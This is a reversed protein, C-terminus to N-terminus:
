LLHPHRVGDTQDGMVPSSVLSTRRLHTLSKESQNTQKQGVNIAPPTNVNCTAPILKGSWNLIDPGKPAGETAYAGRVSNANITGGLKDGHAETELMIIAKDANTPAYSKSREHGDQFIKQGRLTM